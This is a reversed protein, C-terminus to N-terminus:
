ERDHGLWPHHDATLMNIVPVTANAALEEVIAHPVTRIGIAHVFRSLVLATDRVSEGRSIQMEGERLLM